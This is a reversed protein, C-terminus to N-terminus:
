KGELTQEILEIIAAARSGGDNNLDEFAEVIREQRKQKLFMNISMARDRYFALTEVAVMYLAKEQHTM